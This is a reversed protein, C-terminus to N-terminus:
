LERGRFFKESLKVSLVTSIIVAAFLVIIYVPIGILQTSASLADPIGFDIKRIKLEQLIINGAVFFIILGGHVLLISGKNRIKYFVPIVVAMFVGVKIFYIVMAKLNFIESLDVSSNVFIRNFILLMFFVYILLVFTLILSSIYRASIIRSRDLPLSCLLVEGNRILDMFTIIIILIFNWMGIEMLYYSERSFEARSSRAFLMIAFLPIVGIILHIVKSNAKYDKIILNLMDKM